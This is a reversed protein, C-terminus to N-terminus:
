RPKRWMFYNTVDLIPMSGTTEFGFRRYFAVNEPKDTELYGDAAERDLQECYREMLRWGVGQGQAEPDVGIPGLHDHRESPDRKEWAGLWSMLRLAAPLGFARIM